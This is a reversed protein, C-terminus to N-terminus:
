LESTFPLKLGFIGAKSAPLDNRIHGTFSFPISLMIVEADNRSEEEALRSLHNNMIGLGQGWLLFCTTELLYGCFKRPWRCTFLVPADQGKYLRYRYLPCTPSLDQLRSSFIGWHAMHVDIPCIQSWNLQAWPCADAMKGRSHRRWIHPLMNHMGDSSFSTYCLQCDAQNVPVQSCKKGPLFTCPPPGVFKLTGTQISFHRFSDESDAEYSYLTRWIPPKGQADKKKHRSITLWLHNCIWRLM